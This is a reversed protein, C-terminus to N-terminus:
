RSQISGRSRPVFSSGAAFSSNRRASSSRACCAGPRILGREIEANREQVLVVGFQEDGADIRDLPEALEM